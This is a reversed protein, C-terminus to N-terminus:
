TRVRIPSFTSGVFYTTKTRLFLCGRALALAIKFLQPSSFPKYSGLISYLSHPHEIWQAVLANKYFGM